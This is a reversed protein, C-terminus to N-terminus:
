IAPRQVVIGMNLVSSFSSRELFQMAFSDNPSLSLKSESRNRFM